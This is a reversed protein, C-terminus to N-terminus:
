KLDVSVQLQALALDVVTKDAAAAALREEYQQASAAAKSQEDAISQKLAEQALGAEELQKTLSAITESLERAHAHSAQIQNAAEDLRANLQVVTEDVSAKASLGQANAEKLQSITQQLDRITVRLDECQEQMAHMQKLTEAHDAFAHVHQQSLNTREVYQDEISRQLQQSRAQNEANVRKAEDLQAQLLKSREQAAAAEGTRQAHAAALTDHQQQLTNHATITRALEAELVSSGCGM